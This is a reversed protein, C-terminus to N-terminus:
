EPIEPAAVISNTDIYFLSLNHQMEDDIVFLYRVIIAQNENKFSV